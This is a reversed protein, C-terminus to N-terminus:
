VCQKRLMRVHRAVGAFQYRAAEEEPPVDDAGPRSSYAGVDIITGGEAVIQRARAAIDAETQKRSGAYFSDPTVNLIGMVVPMSMDLLRGGTNLTYPIFQNMM